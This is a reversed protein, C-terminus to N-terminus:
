FLRGIFKIIKIFIFGVLAAMAIYVSLILLIRVLNIVWLVAKKFSLGFGAWGSWTIRKFRLLKRKARKYKKLDLPAAVRKLDAAWAKMPKLIVDIIKKKHVPWQDITTKHDEMEAHALDLQLLQQSLHNEFPEKLKASIETM